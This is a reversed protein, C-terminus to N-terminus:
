HQRANAVARKVIDLTSTPGAEAAIVNAATAGVVPTIAPKVQVVPPKFHENAFKYAEKLQELAAVETKAVGDRQHIEALGANLLRNKAAFNPDKLKRDAEWSIVASVITDQKTKLEQAARRDAEAKTHTEM